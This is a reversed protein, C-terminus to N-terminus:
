LGMWKQILTRINDASAIRMRNTYIGLGADEPFVCEDSNECLSEWGNHFIVRGDSAFEIQPASEGLLHMGYADQTFPLLYKTGESLLLPSSSEFAFESGEPINEFDDKIFSSETRITYTCSSEGQEAGIVTCCLFFRTEELVEDENFETISKPIYDAIGISRKGDTVDEYKVPKRRTSDATAEDKPVDDAVADYNLETESAEAAKGEQNSSDGANETREANDPLLANQPTSENDEAAAPVDDSKESLRAEASTEAKNTGDSTQLKDKGLIFVGASLIIAFAAAAALIRVLNQNGKKKGSVQIARVPAADTRNYQQDREAEDVANEIRSWLKEMDPATRQLNDEYLMKIEKENM